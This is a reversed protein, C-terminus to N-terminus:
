NKNLFTIYPRDFVEQSLNMM